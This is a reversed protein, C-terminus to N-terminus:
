AAAIKTAVQINTSTDNAPEEDSSSTVKVYFLRNTTDIEDPITLSSSFAGTASDGVTWKAANTGVFSIVTNGTTKFGTECRIAVPIANSTESNAADLTVSLPNTETDGSSIIDGDTGGATPNNMYLNIYKNKTTDAM